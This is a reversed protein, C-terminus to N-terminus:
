MPSSRIFARRTPRWQRLRRGSARQSRWCKRERVRSGLAIARGLGRGAGTVIAVKGKFADDM